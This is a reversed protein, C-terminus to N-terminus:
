VFMDIHFNKGCERLASYARFNLYEDQSAVNLIDNAPALMELDYLTYLYADMAAENKESLIEFLKMRQEPLMGSKSLTRSITILKIKDLELLSMLEILKDNPIELRNEDANIRAFLFNLAKESMFKKHKEIEDLSATQVFDVYVEECLIDAYKATNGLITEATVIGKKYKNRKNAIVLENNSKLGYPKLDVTEGMKIKNLLDLITDIKENNTTGSIDKIPSLATNELLMGLLKYRPTKYENHREEKQLYADCIADIIKDNDKQFKRDRFTHILSHFWMHTASAIYLVFIPVIVLLAIAIAPLTTGFFNLSFSDQSVYAYVYWGVLAMWILSAITYRKIYMM